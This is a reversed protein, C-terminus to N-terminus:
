DARGKTPEDRKIDTSRTTVSDGAGDFDPIPSETLQRVALHASEDAAEPCSM